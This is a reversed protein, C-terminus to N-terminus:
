YYHIHKVKHAKHDIPDYRLFYFRVLGKLVVQRGLFVVLGKEEVRVLRRGLRFLFFILEVVVDSGRLDVLHRQVQREGLDEIEVRSAVAVLM